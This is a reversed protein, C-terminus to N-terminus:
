YSVRCLELKETGQCTLGLMPKAPHLILYLHLHLTPHYSKYHQSAPYFYKQPFLIQEIQCILHLITKFTIMSHLIFFHLYTMNYINSPSSCSKGPRISMFVRIPVPHHPQALFLSPIHSQFLVHKLKHTPYPTNSRSIKTQDCHQLTEKDQGMKLGINNMKILSMHYSNGCRLHKIAFDLVYKRLPAGALSHYM